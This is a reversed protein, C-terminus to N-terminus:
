LSDLGLEEPPIEEPSTERRLPKRASPAAVKKPAEEKPLEGKIVAEITKSRVGVVVILVQVLGKLSEDIRAGWLVNADQDLAGVVTEVVQEMEELSFDPGCTINIIAAKGGSIDVDLLPNSLADEVAEIARNDSDSEGFLLAAVGGGEVVARFDALDVNILGPKTILEVIGKVARAMIEDCIMFAQYLPLDRAIDLIRDNAVVIITDTVKILRELGQYALEKKRRGEVTFPLTVISIVIAGLQKAIEAIVPAAGTGTGGGLGATLFLIDTGALVDKIVEASERAAEEGIRPDGGAGTGGCLEPGLLIKRDAATILLHAADTNAAITEAGGIKLANLRTITNSGAGGVGMIVIRVKGRELIKQIEQDEPAVKQPMEYDEMKSARASVRAIMSKL